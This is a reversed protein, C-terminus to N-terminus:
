GVSGSPSNHTTRCALKWHQASSKKATGSQKCDPSVNWILPREPVHRKLPVIVSIDPRGHLIRLALKTTVCLGSLATRAPNDNHDLAPIPQFTKSPQFHRLGLAPLFGFLDADLSQLLVRPLWHGKQQTQQSGKEPMIRVHQNGYKHLCCPVFTRHFSLRLWPLIRGKLLM